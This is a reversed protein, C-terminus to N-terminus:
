SNALRETLNAMDAVYKELAPKLSGSCNETGGFLTGMYSITSGSPLECVMEKGELAQSIEVLEAMVDGSIDDTAKSFDLNIKIFRAYILCDESFPKKGRVELVAETTGMDSTPAPAGDFRAPTCSNVADMFCSTDEGCDKLMFPLLGSSIGFIAVLGAVIVVAVILVALLIKNM